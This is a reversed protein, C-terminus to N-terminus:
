RFTQDTNCTPAGLSFHSMVSPAAVELTSHTDKHLSQFRFRLTACNVYAFIPITPMVRSARESLSFPLMCRRASPWVGLHSPSSGCTLCAIVLCTLAGREMLATAQLRTVAMRGGIMYLGLAEAGQEGARSLPCGLASFSSRIRSLTCGRRPLLDLRAPYRPSRTLVSPQRHSCLRNETGYLIM